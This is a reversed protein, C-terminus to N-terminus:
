EVKSLVPVRLLKNKFIYAWKYFFSFLYPGDIISDQLLLWTWMKTCQTCKSGHIKKM